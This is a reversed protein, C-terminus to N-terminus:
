DTSTYAVKKRLVNHTLKKPQLSRNPSRFASECPTRQAYAELTHISQTTGTIPDDLPRVHRALTHARRPLNECPSGCTERPSAARLPTADRGNPPVNTAPVPLGTDCQHKLAKLWHTLPRKFSLCFRSEVALRPLSREIAREQIATRPVRASAIGSM